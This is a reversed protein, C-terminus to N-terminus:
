QAVPSIYNQTLENLFENRSEKNDFMSLINSDTLIKIWCKVLLQQLDYLLDLNEESRIGSRINPKYKGHILESRVDYLKNIKEYYYNKKEDDDGIFCALRTCLIRTMRRRNDSSLMAEIAAMSNIFGVQWRITTNAAHTFNISGGLRDERGFIKSLSELYSKSDELDKISIKSQVKDTVYFYHDCIRIERPFSNFWEPPDLLLFQIYTGSYNALWLSMLFLQVEDDNVMHNNGSPYFILAHTSQDLKTKDEEGLLGTYEHYSIKSKMRVIELRKNISFNDVDSDFDILPCIYKRLITNPNMSRVEGTM